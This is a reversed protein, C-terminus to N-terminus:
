DQAQRPWPNSWARIEPQTPAAVAEQAFCAYPMSQGMNPQQPGAVAVQCEVQSQPGPEQPFCAYPVSLDMGPQQPVAVAVLTYQVMGSAPWQAPAMWQGPMAASWQDPTATTWQDPGTISHEAVNNYEPVAQSLSIM